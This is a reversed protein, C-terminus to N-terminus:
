AHEEAATASLAQNLAQLADVHYLTGIIQPPPPPGIADPPRPTVPRIVPLFAAGTRRFESLARDLTAGDVLARGSLALTRVLDPAPANEADPMRILSNISMKRPLWVQPGEAIHVGRLQLNLMEPGSGQATSNDLAVDFIARDHGTLRDAHDVRFLGDSVDDGRQDGFRVDRQRPLVPGFSWLFVTM